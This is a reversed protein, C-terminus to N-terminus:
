RGDTLQLAPADADGSAGSCIHRAVVSAGPVFRDRTSIHEVLGLRELANLLSRLTPSSAIRFRESM